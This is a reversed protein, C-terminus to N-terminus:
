LLQRVQKAVLVLTGPPVTVSNITSGAVVGGNLDYFLLGKVLLTSQAALGNLGSTNVFTTSGNTLVIIPAHNFLTACPIMTFAGTKNDAAAQVLSSFSGQQTQLKLYIKDPAVTTPPSVTSGTPTPPRNFVGHVVVEQGVSLAKQDFSLDTFNTSRSSYQYTTSPSPNVVVVSGLPVTPSGTDPEEERVYMTFQTVNGEADKSISLIDGLFALKNVNTAPDEQDEIEVSNAVFNGKADVYGNVEAFSNTLIQDLALSCPQNAVAAPGCTITGDVATNSTLDVTLSTGTGQLLQLGIDGIFSANSSFTAVRQVIGLVDDLEGFGQDPSVTIPTATMVPNVIGTVQGSSDLQVSHLLDLDIKLASVQTQGNVPPNVVLNPRIPIEPATSPLTAAISKIPPNQTPDYVELTPGSMVITAQDYTGARVNTFNLVTSFDRLAGFNVKIAATSPIVAVHNPTGAIRLFLTPRTSGAALVRFSLVDCFPADGIFTFLAGNGPSTPTSSSDGCGSILLAAGLLLAFSAVLKGRLIL